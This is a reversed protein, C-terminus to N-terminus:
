CSFCYLFDVVMEGYVMKLMWFGFLLCLVDVSVKVSRDAVVLGNLSSWVLADYVMKQLLEQDIGHIDAMNKLFKVQTEFEGM